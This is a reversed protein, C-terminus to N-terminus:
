LEVQGGWLSEYFQTRFSTPKKESGTIIMIKEALDSWFDCSEAAVQVDPGLTYFPHSPSSYQLGVKMANTLEKGNDTTVEWTLDRGFNLYNPDGALAHAAFYKQYRTALPVWINELVTSIWDPLLPVIAKILGAVDVEENWIVPLLDNGHQAPPIEYRTAYVESNNKYAQYIQYNNCVFTSDRLVARLRTQQDNDYTGSPYKDEINQRM